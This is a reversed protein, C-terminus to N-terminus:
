NKELEMIMKMTENKDLNKYYFPDGNKYKMSYYMWILFNWDHDFITCGRSSYEEENLEAFFGDESYPWRKSIKCNADFSESFDILYIKSGTDIFNQSRLDSHVINLRHLLEIQSTIFDLNEIAREYELKKGAVYEMIILHACKPFNIYNGLLTEKFIGLTSYEVLDQETLDFHCLINPIILNPENSKIYEHIESEQRLFKKYYDLQVTVKIIVKSTECIYDPFERVFKPVINNPNYYFGEFVLNNDDCLCEGFKFM